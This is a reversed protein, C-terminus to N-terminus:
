KIYKCEINLIEIAKPWFGDSSRGCGFDSRMWSETCIQGCRFHSLFGAEIGFGTSIRSCGFDPWIGATRFGSHLFMNNEQTNNKRITRRHIFRETPTTSVYISFCTTKVNPEDSLPAFGDAPSADRIRQEVAKELMLSRYFICTRNSFM